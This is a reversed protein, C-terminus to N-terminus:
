VIRDHARDGVRYGRSLPAASKEPHSVLIDSLRRRRRGSRESSGRARRARSYDAQGRVRGTGLGDMRGRARGREFIEKERPSLKGLKAPKKLPPRAFKKRLNKAGPNPRKKPM